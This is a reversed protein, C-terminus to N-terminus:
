AVNFSITLRNTDLNARVDPNDALAANLSEVAEEMRSFARTLYPDEDPTEYLCLAFM